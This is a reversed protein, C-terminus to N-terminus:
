EYDEESIAELYEYICFPRLQNDHADNLGDYWGNVETSWDIIEVKKM